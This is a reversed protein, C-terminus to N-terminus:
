EPWRALCEKNEFLECPTDQGRANKCFALPVHDQNQPCVVIGMSTSPQESETEQSENNTMKLRRLYDEYPIKMKKHWKDYFAQKADKSWLEIENRHKEEFEKLPQKNLKEFPYQKAQKDGDVLPKIKENFEKESINPEYTKKSVKPPEFREPKENVYDNWSAEGDKIARYIGRLEQLESPNLVDTKRGLYQELDKPTVGIVSFADLLKKKAEDPDQADRNRLTHRARAIAEDIIDTPILRLGENRLAKSILSAEKNALEDETAKVVFVKEGHTNIREALVERGNAKKREVTKNLQIEKSGIRNTELDSAFVKIRRVYDDEYIVQTETLVNGWERLALEAFRITPGKIQRGAVPKNFEVKEAFAPRKCAHLIKIRAEDENRPRHLAMMYAAQIRAKATEAAAIAAPDRSFLAPVNKPTEIIENTM